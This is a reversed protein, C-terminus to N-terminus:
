AVCHAGQGRAVRSATVFVFSGVVPHEDNALTRGVSSVAGSRYSLSKFSHNRGGCSRFRSLRSWWLISRTQFLCSFVHSNCILPSTGMVFGLKM